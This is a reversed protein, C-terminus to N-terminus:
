LKKFYSDLIEVAFKTGSKIIQRTSKVRVIPLDNNTHLIYRIEETYDSNKLSYFYKEMIIDTIIWITNNLYKYDLTFENANWILVDGINYKSKLPLTM